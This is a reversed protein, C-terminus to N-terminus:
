EDCLPCMKNPNEPVLCVPDESRNTSRCISHWCWVCQKIMRHRQKGSWSTTNRYLLSLSSSFYSCKWGMMFKWIYIYLFFAAKQQECLTTPSLLQHLMCINQAKIEEKGAIEADVVSATSKHSGLHFYQPFIMISGVLPLRPALHYSSKCSHYM